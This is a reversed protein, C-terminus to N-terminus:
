TSTMRSDNFVWEPDCLNYVSERTPCPNPHEVFLGTAPNAEVYPMTPQISIKRNGLGAINQWSYLNRQHDSEFINFIIYKGPTNKEERLMRLYALYVSYGGIGYNRAPECLHAALFEQWTEGDNVQACNTFSDGYTNIRCSKDAYMIIRRVDHKDDEYDYISYSGDLADLRKYDNYLYGVDSDYKALTYAKGVFWDDVEQRTYLISDLFERVQNSEELTPHSGGTSRLASNEDDAAAHNGPLPCSFLLVLIWCFFRSRNMSDTKMNPSRQYMDDGVRNVWM